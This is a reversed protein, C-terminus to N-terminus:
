PSPPPSYVGFENGAPDAITAFVLGNPATTAPMIVRGGEAEARACAAAVDRVVVLFSAQNSEPAGAAASGGPRDDDGRGGVLERAGGADLTFKWGFVEGYFRMAAASDDTGIRHWNVTDYAPTTM